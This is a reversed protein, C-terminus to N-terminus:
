TGAEGCWVRRGAGYGGGRVMGASFLRYGTSEPDEDVPVVLLSGPLMEREHARYEALSVVDDCATAATNPGGNSLGLRRLPEFLVVRGGQHGVALTEHRHGRVAMVAMAVVPTKHASVLRAVPQLVPLSPLTRLSLLWLDSIVGAPPGLVQCM